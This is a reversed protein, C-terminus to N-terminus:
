HLSQEQIAGNILDDKSYTGDVNITTDNDISKTFLWEM